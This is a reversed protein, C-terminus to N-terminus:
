GHGHSRELELYNYLNYIITAVGSFAIFAGIPRNRLHWGARVMVPGFILVDFLRVSQGKM